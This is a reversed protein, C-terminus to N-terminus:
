ARRACRDGSGAGPASCYPFSSTGEQVNIRPTNWWLRKQLYLDKDRSPHDLCSKWTPNIWQCSCLRPSQAAAAGDSRASIQQSLSNLHWLNGWLMENKELCKMALSHAAPGQLGRMWARERPLVDGCHQTVWRVWCVRGM